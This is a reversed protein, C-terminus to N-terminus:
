GNHVASQKQKQDQLLNAALRDADLHLDGRLDDADRQDRGDEDEDRRLVHVLHQLSTQVGRKHQNTLRIVPSADNPDADYDIRWSTTKDARLRLTIPGWFDCRSRASAVISGLRRTHLTMTSMSECRGQYRDGFYIAVPCPTNNEIVLRSRGRSAPDCSRVGAFAQSSPALILIAAVSQALRKIAM